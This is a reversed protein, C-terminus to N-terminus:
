EAPSSGTPTLKYGDVDPTLKDFVIMFPVEGGPAINMNAGNVGGKISLQSQIESIPLTALLNQDIINGAYVSREALIKGNADNLAAKLRIFNRREPYNNTVLGTIIFLRGTGPSTNDLFFHNLNEKNNPFGIHSAGVPDEESTFTTAETGTTTWEGGGSFATVKSRNLFYYVGGGIILLLILALCIFKWPGRPEASIASRITTERSANLGILMKPKSLEEALSEMPDAGLGHDEDDDLYDEPHRDYDQDDEPTDEFDDDNLDDDDKAAAPRASAPTRRTRRISPPADDDDDEDEDYGYDAEDDMSDDDDDPSDDYAPRSSEDELDAYLQRRLARRESASLEDDPESLGSGSRLGGIARGTDDDDEYDYDDYDKRTSEHRRPPDDFLDDIDDYGPRRKPADNDLDALFSGLPDSERRYAKELEAPEPAEVPRPRYVTFVHQCNSCRVKSGTEKIQEPAIKFRAQCQGCTIIM